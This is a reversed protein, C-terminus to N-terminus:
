NRNEQEGSIGYRRRYAGFKTEVEERGLGFPQLGYRHAPKKRQRDRLLWRDMQREMEGSFTFGFYDYVQRVTRRPDQVLQDYGVDLIRDPNEARAAEGRALMEGCAELAWPGLERRDVRDASIGRVAAILSCFSPIVRVPDRHTQVICADPFVHLLSDLSALHIPSKLIWRKGHAPPPLFKLRREYDRYVAIRDERTLARLWQEYGPARVLMLFGISTLTHLMLTLDEEPGDAHLPHIAQLEPAMRYLGRVLLRAKGTQWAARPGGAPSPFAPWVAERMELPRAAPDQALLNYLLTTGTRPLGTIFLPRRLPAAFREPHRQQEKELNRRGALIEVLRRGMLWRGLPHLGAEERCSALLRRLAVPCEKTEAAALISGEELPDRILGCALLRASIRNFIRVEFPSRCDAM